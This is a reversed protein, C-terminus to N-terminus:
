IVIKSQIEQKLKERHAIFKAKDNVTLHIANKHLARVVDVAKGNVHLEYHLHAGTVRGSKGSLAILQNRNVKQGKKVFAKNLHLYRTKYKSGHDIEIYLGAYQHRVVKSVVGEAPSLIKSGVPMSYDTGYHPKIRGTVPHKRSKNFHSTIKFSGDFPHKNFQSEVSNGEKDYFHNNFLYIEITKKPLQFNVVKLKFEGTKENKIYNREILIVFRNGKRIDRRFNVQTKLIQQIFISEKANLGADIAAETFTTDVSGSIVENRWKGPTTIWEAKFQKSPLLTYVIKRSLSIELTISALRGENYTLLLKQGPKINDLALDESDAELLAYYLADEPILKKRISFLTDGPRILYETHDVGHLEPLINKSVGQATIPEPLFGEEDPLDLSIITNKQDDKWDSMVFSLVILM